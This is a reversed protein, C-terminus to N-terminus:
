AGALALVVVIAVAPVGTLGVGLAFQTIAMGALFGTPMRLAGLPMDALAEVGRGLCASALVVAAPVIVWSVVFTSVATLQMPAALRRCEVPAPVHSGCAQRGSRRFRRRAGCSTAAPEAQRVDPALPHFYCRACRGAAPHHSIPSEGGGPGGSERSEGGAADPGARGITAVSM